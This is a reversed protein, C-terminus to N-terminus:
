PTKTLGAAGVTLIVRRYSSLAPSGSDSVELIIHAQSGPCPEKSPMWAPRCADTVTVAAHATDGGALSVNALVRGPVFGAESYHCWRFQLAHGDPDSSGAAHLEVPKGLSADLYIPTTGAVGNVVVVPAHNAHAYDSVTWTMRAAFEHQFARRWRWITAQDSVYTKGDTGVVTDASTVRRFLDGGQTWLGRTEGYPQRFVYRGGWGGWGPSQFSALGNNTLGLISPTDGEMIFDFRPYLKGLPGTKRINTELWENTITSGDAGAGNQYYVDGSIGTWTASAYEEANPPSPKAIYFLTPFTRRIWPGADDQDSISNVRLRAILAALETGTLTARAHTLAEALTNAGGWVAVWLPRADTRRAADLLAVAGPSPQKTELAAMGYGRPGTSIRALLSQATPWGRSHLLLNQQVRGYARILDRIIEPQVRDKQWTSTTAVLGEIDIENSYLLLRVLSMQDDPENGIDTLVFLRPNGAFNDVGAPSEALTAAQSTTACLMLVLVALKRM